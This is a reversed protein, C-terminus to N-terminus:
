PVHGPPKVMPVLQVPLSRETVVGQATKTLIHLEQDGIASVVPLIMTGSVALQEVLATPLCSSLATAPSVKLARAM